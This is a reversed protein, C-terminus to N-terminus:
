KSKGKAKTIALQRPCKENHGVMKSEGCWPCYVSGHCCVWEIAELARLIKPAADELRVMCNYCIQYEGCLVLPREGGCFECKGMEVGMQNQKRELSHVGVNPVIVKIRNM